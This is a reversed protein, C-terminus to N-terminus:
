HHIATTRVRWLVYWITRVYVHVYTRVYLVMTTGVMSGTTHCYQLLMTSGALESALQTAAHPHANKGVIEAGGLQFTQQRLSWNSSIAADRSPAWTAMSVVAPGAEPALPLACQGQQSCPVTFCAPDQRTHPDPRADRGHLGM